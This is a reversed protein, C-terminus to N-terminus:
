PLVKDNKVREVVKDVFDEKSMVLMATELIAMRKNTTNIRHALATYRDEAERRTRECFACDDNPPPLTNPKM